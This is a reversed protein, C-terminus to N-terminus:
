RASTLSGANLSDASRGLDPRARPGLPLRAPADDARARRPPHGAGHGCRGRWGVALGYLYARGILVARAGLALAKAVDSGRRVGGDVLVETVDGVADVVEPLARLTAPSGDLQRGGHNSVVVAAAGLDVARRADDGTMLGKVVIPGRWQERIWALDSWKPPASVMAKHAEASPLPTGDPGLRYTNPMDLSMGDRVFRYFWGPHMAMQPAFVLANRGTIGLPVVVRNRTDRERNGIVATDVTLVLATYGAAQARELLAEAGNRGGMFYLQFWKERVHPAAAAGDAVDELSTGAATSVISVTGAAAAARAVGIEGDPHVLRVFGCPACLVPFEVPTGLVTTGLDPKVHVAVRPRFTVEEFAKENERLTVEGDAAGDVFDFVVRPLVRRARRRAEGVSYIATM